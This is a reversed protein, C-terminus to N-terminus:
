FLLSRFTNNKYNLIRLFKQFTMALMHTKASSIGTVHKNLKYKKHIIKNSLSISIDTINYYNESNNIFITQIILCMRLFIVFQFYNDRESCKNLMKRSQITITLLAM